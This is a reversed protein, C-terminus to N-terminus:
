LKMNEVLFIDDSLGQDFKMDSLKIKTSHSKEIDKMVVEKANWYKGIKEYTYTAEKFMRKQENYFKMWIPYSNTKDM